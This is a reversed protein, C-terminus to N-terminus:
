QSLHCLNTPFSFSCVITLKFPLIIFIWVCNQIACSIADVTFVVVVDVLFFFSLLTLTLSFTYLSFCNSASSFFFCMPVVNLYNKSLKERGTKFFWDCVSCFPICWFQHNWRALYQNKDCWICKTFTIQTQIVAADERKFNWFFFTQFFWALKLACNRGHSSQNRLVKTESKNFVNEFDGNM